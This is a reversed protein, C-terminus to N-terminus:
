YQLKKKMCKMNKRSHYDSFRLTFRIALYTCKLEFTFFASEKFLSLNLFLHCRIVQEGIINPKVPRCPLHCICMRYGLIFFPQNM